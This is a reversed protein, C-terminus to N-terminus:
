AGKIIRILTKDLQITRNWPNLIIGSIEPVALAADFLKEMDVLFTSQVPEAGKMEEDFSTFAYWWSAGDATRIARLQMQESGLNPEVAM